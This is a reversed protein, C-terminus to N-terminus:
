PNFPLWNLVSRRDVRATGFEDQVFQNTNFLALLYKFELFKNIEEPSKCTITSTANNCKDFVVMLNKAVETNYNGFLSLDREPNVLCKFRRRYQNFQSEALPSIPYFKTGGQQEQEINGDIGELDSEECFRSELETLFEVDDEKGWQKM